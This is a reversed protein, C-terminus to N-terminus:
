QTGKFENIVKESIALKLDGQEVDKLYVASQGLTAAKGEFALPTDNYYYMGSIVKIVKLIAGLKIIGKEVFLPDELTTIFDKESKDVAKNVLQRLEPTTISPLVRMGTNIVFLLMRERSQELAGLLKYAKKKYDSAELEFLVEEDKKSRVYRYSAKQNIVRVNPAIVNDYASLVKDVLLDYPRSIDLHIGAKPMEVSFAKLYTNKINHVNLDEDILGLGKKIFEEEETSLNLIYRGSTDRLVSFKDIASDLKGDYLPHKRNTVGKIRKPIYKYRVKVSKKVKTEM